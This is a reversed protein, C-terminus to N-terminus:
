LAKFSAQRMIDKNNCDIAEGRVEWYAVVINHGLARVVHPTSYKRSVLRRRSM